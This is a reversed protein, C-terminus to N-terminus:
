LTVRVREVEVFRSHVDRYPQALPRRPGFGCVSAEFHLLGGLRHFAGVEHHHEHRVLVDRRGIALVDLRIHLLAGREAERVAEVDMKALDDRASVQVHDHDRWLYTWPAPVGHRIATAWSTLPLARSRANDYAAAM